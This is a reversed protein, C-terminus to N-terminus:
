SNNCTNDTIITGLVIGPNCSGNIFEANGYVSGLNISNAIFRANGMVIASNTSNSIFDANNSVTGGNSSYNTFVASGGIDAVNYAFSFLGNGLIKGGNNNAFVPGDGFLTGEFIGSKHIIGGYNISEGKFTANQLFEGLYNTSNDFVADGRISTSSFSEAGGGPIPAYSYTGSNISYNSFLGSGKINGGINKSSNTFTGNKGIDGFFNSSFNFEADRGINGSHNTSSIFVADLNINGYNQSSNFRGYIINGYNTAGEFVCLGLVSNGSNTSGGGFIAQQIQGFNVSNSFRSSSNLIGYNKASVFNIEVGCTVSGYNIVDGGFYASDFTVNPLSIIPGHNQARNKFLVDSLDEFRTEQRINGYNISLDEFVLKTKCSNINGKNIGSGLFELESNTLLNNNISNGNFELSVGSLNFKNETYDVFLAQKEILGLNVSYNYFEGVLCKGINKAGGRFIGTLVVTGKNVTEDEFSLNNGSGLNQSQGSFVGTNIIGKNISKDNFSVKAQRLDTHNVSSGAFYASNSVNGSNVSSEGFCGDQVSYFNKSSNCFIGSTVSGLNYSQGQFLSKLGINGINITKNDFIASNSYGINVSNDLFWGSVDVNGHNLSNNRFVALTSSGSNQSNNNYTAAYATGLNVTDNKFITHYTRDIDGNNIGSTNFVVESTLASISSEISGNNKTTSNFIVSIAQNIIGFNIGSDAFTITGGACTNYNYSGSKFAISSSFTSLINGENNSNDFFLIDGYAIISGKNSCSNSFSHSTGIISGENNSSDIFKTDGLVSGFNEANIFLGGDELSGNNSTGSNFISYKLLQGDNSSQDNFIAQETVIGNNKSSNYFSVTGSITGDNQATDAFICNGVVTGQNICSGSFIVNSYITGQNIGNKFTTPGSITGLNVAGQDFVFSGNGSGGFSGGEIIFDGEAIVRDNIISSVLTGSTALIKTVYDSSSKISTNELYLSNSKIYSNEILSHTTQLGTGSSANAELIFYEMTCGSPMQLSSVTWECFTKHNWHKLSIKENCIVNNGELLECTFYFQDDDGVLDSGIITLNNCVLSPIQSFCGHTAIVYTYNKKTINADDITNKPIKPSKKSLKDDLYWYNNNCWNSQAM